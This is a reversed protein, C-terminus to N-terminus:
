LFKLCSLRNGPSPILRPGGSYPFIICILPWKYHSTPHTEGRFYITLHKSYCYHFQCFSRTFFHDLPPSSFGSSSHWHRDSSTQTLWHCQSIKERSTIWNRMPFAMEALCIVQKAPCAMLKTPYIVEKDSYAVLKAPYAVQKAPWAVETALCSVQKAFCAVQKAPCESQACTFHAKLYCLM